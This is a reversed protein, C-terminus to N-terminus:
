KAQKFFWSSALLLIFLLIFLLVLWPSFLPSSLKIHVPNLFINHHDQRHYRILLLVLSSSGAKSSLRPLSSSRARLRGMRRDRAIAIARLRILELLSLPTTALVPHCLGNQAVVCHGSMIQWHSWHFATTTTIHSTCLSPRRRNPHTIGIISTTITTTIPFPIAAVELPNLGSSM